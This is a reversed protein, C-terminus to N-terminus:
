RTKYISLKSVKQEANRTKRSEREDWTRPNIRDFIIILLFIGLWSGAILIAISLTGILFGFQYFVLACVACALLHWSIIESFVIKPEWNLGTFVGIFAATIMTLSGHYYIVQAAQLSGMFYSTWIVISLVIFCIKIINWIM